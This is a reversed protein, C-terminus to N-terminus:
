RDKWCKALKTIVKQCGNIGSLIFVIGMSVTVLAIAVFLFEYPTSLVLFGGAFVAKTYFIGFLLSVLGVFTVIILSALHFIERKLATGIMKEALADLLKIGEILLVMGGILALLYIIVDKM